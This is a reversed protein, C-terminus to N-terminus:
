RIYGRRASKCMLGGVSKKWKNRPANAKTRALRCDMNAMWSRKERRLQGEGHPRLDEWKRKEKQNCTLATIDHLPSKPGKETTGPTHPRDTGGALEM